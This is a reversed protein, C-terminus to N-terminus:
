STASQAAKGLVKKRELPPLAPAKYDDNLGIEAACEPCLEMAQTTSPQDGGWQNRVQRTQTFTVAGERGGKFAHDGYDCWRAESM